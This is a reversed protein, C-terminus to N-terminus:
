GAISPEQHDFLPPTGDVPEAINDRHVHKRHWADSSGGFAVRQGYQNFRPLLQRTPDELHARRVRHCHGYVDRVRVLDTPHYDPDPIYTGDAQRIEFM